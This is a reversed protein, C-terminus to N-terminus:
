IDLTWWRIHGIDVMKYTCYVLKGQIPIRTFLLIGPQLESSVTKRSVFLLKIKHPMTRGLNHFMSSVILLSGIDSIVINVQKPCSVWLIWFTSKHNRSWWLTSKPYACDLQSPGLTTIPWPFLFHPSTFRPTPLTLQLPIYHSHEQCHYTYHLRLPRWSEWATPSASSAVTCYLVSTCNGMAYHITCNGMSSLHDIM